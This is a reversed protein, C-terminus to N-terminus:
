NVAISESVASKTKTRWNGEKSLFVGVKVASLSDVSDPVPLWFTKQGTGSVEEAGPIGSSLYGEEGGALVYHLTCTLHTRALDKYKVTANMREGKKAATPVTVEFSDGAKLTKTEAKTHWDDDPRTKPKPYIM